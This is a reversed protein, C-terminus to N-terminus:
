QSQLRRCDCYFDQIDKWGEPNGELAMEISEKWRSPPADALRAEMKSVLAQSGGTGDLLGRDVYIQFPSDPLPPYFEGDFDTSEAFIRFYLSKDPHFAIEPNEGFDCESLSEIAISDIRAKGEPLIFPKGPRLNSRIKKQEGESTLLLHGRSSFSVEVEDGPLEAIAEWVKELSFRQYDEWEFLYEKTTFSRTKIAEKAVTLNEGSAVVNYGFVFVEEMEPYSLPIPDVVEWEETRDEPDSRWDSCPISIKGWGLHLTIKKGISLIVRSDSSTESSAPFWIKRLLPVVEKTESPLRKGLKKISSFNPMKKQSGVGLSAIEEEVIPNENQPLFVLGEGLGSDIWYCDIQTESDDQERIGTEFFQSYALLPFRSGQTLQSWITAPSMGSGHAIAVTGGKAFAISDNGILVDTPFPIARFATELTKASFLFSWSECVLLDEM